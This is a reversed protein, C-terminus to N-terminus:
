INYMLSQMWIVGLSNLLISLGLLINTFTTPFLNMLFTLSLILLPLVDLIYRYGFQYWGTSFYLLLFFLIVGSTLIYVLLCRNERRFFNISFIGFFLLLLPSTSFISNGEPDPRIYPFTKTIGIPNIFLYFANNSLYHLSIIGYNSLDSQWKPSAQHYDLGNEFFSGFRIHNYLGFLGISAVSIALSIILLKKRLPHMCFLVYLHLLGIIFLTNRGWFSICLFLISLIYHIDKKSEVFKFLLFLSILVPITAIIQSTFWVNGIVSLYFYVTGFAFFLTLLFIRSESIPPIFKARRAQHLVLYLIVPGFSAWFATYLIDSVNIGGFIVFPLAFLSPLPPWYLYAKQKYISLDYLDEPLVILNMHGRALSYAQLSFYNRSTTAWHFTGKGSVLLYIALFFIWLFFCKKVM